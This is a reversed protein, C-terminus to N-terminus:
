WIQRISRRMGSLLYFRSRTQFRSGELLMAAQGSVISRLQQVISQFKEGAAQPLWERFMGLIVPENFLPAHILCEFWTAPFADPKRVYDNRAAPKQPVYECSDILEHSISYAALFEGFTPHLFEYVIDESHARESKLVFFFSGFLKEAQTLSQGDGGTPYTLHFVALADKVESPKVERKRRNFMSLGAVGLRRMQKNIQEEQEESPLNEFGKLRRQERDVFDRILSHYLATRNLEAQTALRNQHSDYIALMLLLLPQRSLDRVEPHLAKPDFPKTKNSPELFYERNHRNWVEAWQARRRADFEELRIVITDEPVHARNILTMRSTIVTRVPRDFTLSEAQFQECDELYAAFIKGTAQLLEDFGDLIIVPPAKFEERLEPWTVQRGGTEDSLFDKIQTHIRSDPNVKNLEIRITDFRGGLVSGIMHTLMSKGSGPAGLILIPKRISVPSELCRELFLGLDDNVPLKEWTGEDDLRMEPRYRLARYAQPVFIDRRRPFTLGPIGKESIPKEGNRLYLKRLDALTRSAPERGLLSIVEALKQFGLDIDNKISAAAETMGRLREDVSNQFHFNAFIQFEPFKTALEVYQAQYREVADNTISDKLARYDNAKSAADISVIKLVELYGIMTRNLAEYFKKIESLHAEFTGLPHPLDPPPPGVGLRDNENIKSQKALYKQTNEDLALKKWFGPIKKSVSDFFSSYTVLLHAAEIRRYHDVEDGAGVKGLKEVLIEGAKFLGERKDLVEVILDATGPPLGVAIPAFFVMLGM